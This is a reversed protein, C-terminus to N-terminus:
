VAVQLIESDNLDNDQDQQHEFKSIEIRLEHMRKKSDTLLDHELFEKNVVTKAHELRDNANTLQHRYYTINKDFSVIFNNITAFITSAVNKINWHNLNFNYESNTSQSKVILQMNNSSTIVKLKFDSFVGFTSEHKIRGGASITVAQNLDQNIEKCAESHKFHTVGQTNTYKFKDAKLETLGLASDINLKAILREYKQIADSQSVLDNDANRKNRLFATKKAELLQISKTLSVMELVLPSGSTQAKLEAFTMEASAIDDSTKIGLDNSSHFDTIFQQKNQLTQFLFADLSNKTAAISVDLSFSGTGNNYSIGEKSIDNQVSARYIENGQRIGRGLRQELDCPRFPSDLLMIGVLRKNINAGCGLTATSAVVIRFTGNNLKSYLETKAQAKFSQAFVVEGAAVGYDNVLQTKIDDYVCHRGDKNPVGMDLFIIQVGRVNTTAHYKEAVLKVATPIKNGSLETPISPNLLRMDISSKKAHNMVLLMNDNSYTSSKFNQARKVLLKSFDLQLDNAPVIIQRPKGGTIPPIADFKEITGDSNVKEIKPLFKVLENPTVSDTFLGWQQKLQFVNNFARLRSVTKFSGTASIEFDNEIKAYCSVWSDIHETGQDTLTEESLFRTFTYVELLSNAIPTGTSFYVGLSSGDSNNAKLSQIKLYWDFARKSGTPTNTGKVNTLRTSEYALNKLSHAEDCILADIGLETISLGKKRNDNSLEKLRTNLTEKKNEINKVSFRHEQANAENLAEDLKSIEQEIISQEVEPDAPIAAFSSEPCVVVSSGTKLRLLTAQRVAPSLDDPSLVTIQDSPYMTLYQAAFQATLHNPVVIVCRKKLGLRVLEHAICAITFSKGSGVSHNILLRGETIGRYVARLQHERLKISQNSDPLLLVDDLCKLKAHRNFRENFIKSLAKQINLNNMLFDDWESLIQESNLENNLTAEKDIVRKNDGDKFTVQTSRGNMLKPFLYSFTHRESGLRTELSYPLNSATVQWSNNIYDIKIKTYTNQKGQCVHNVFDEYISAPVWNSGLSITIDEFNVDLPLVDNLATLYKGKLEIDLNKNEITQIKTKIDGSQFVNKTVWVNNDDFIQDGDNTHILENVSTSLLEACYNIDVKGYVNLSALLADNITEVSSPATWPYLVRQNFIEAQKCSPKVEKVNLKKAAQKTVGASYDCELSLLNYNTPDLKCVRQNASDHIFGFKTVFTSYRENLQQRISEMEADKGNEQELDLLTMLTHRLGCLGILREEAKGTFESLEWNGSKLQYVSKDSGVAYSGEKIGRTEKVTFAVPQKISVNTKKAIKTAQTYTLKGLTTKIAEISKSEFDDDGICHVNNGRFNKGVQMTGIIQAPNEIYYNNLSYDNGANDQQTDSEIWTNSLDEGQEFVLIDVTANAGTAVEFVNKPLRVAAKLTAYQSLLKRNKNNQADMFSSTIIAVMWGKNNLLSASKTMFYNHLTLGSFTSDKDFIPTSGFPPNQLILDFKTNLNAQEFACNHLNSNPYLKELIDASINDKEVLTLKVNDSISKPMTRLLGGIGASTDLWSGKKTKDVGAAQLGDYIATTISDPTYFSSLTSQRAANYQNATLLSKLNDCRQLWKKNSTNFDFAVPCGGWGVYQSLIMQESLTAESQSQQLTQLTKIASVNRNYRTVISLKSLPFSHFFNKAAVQIKFKSQKGGFDQSQTIYEQLETEDGFFFGTQGGVYEVNMVNNM